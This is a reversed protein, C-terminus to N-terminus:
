APQRSAQNHASQGALALLRWRSGTPSRDFYDKEAQVHAYAERYVTTFVTCMLVAFLVITACVLPPFGVPRLVVCIKREALAAVVRKKLRVQNGSSGRSECGM